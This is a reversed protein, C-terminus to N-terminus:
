RSRRTTQDRSSSWWTTRGRREKTARTASSGAAALRVIPTVTTIATSGCAAKRSRRCFSAPPPFHTVIVDAEAAALAAASPLHRADGPTWLTAGAFRVDGIEVADLELWRVGHRKAAVRGKYAVLDPLGGAWEHNGAVFVSPKGRAISAVMEISMDIDSTTVDGACVFVDFDPANVAIDEIRDAHVDSLIWLRM